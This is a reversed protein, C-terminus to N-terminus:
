VALGHKNLYARLEKGTWTVYHHADQGNWLKNFLGNNDALWYPLAVSKNVGDNWGFIRSKPMWYREGDIQINVAKETKRVICEVNFVYYLKNDEITMM